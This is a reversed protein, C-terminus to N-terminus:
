TWTKKCHDCRLIKGKGKSEKALYVVDDGRENAERRMTRRQDVAQLANILKSFSIKSLDKSDELSSIKSEYRELLSVLLKEVIRQTPFDEGLLKIQNVITMLKSGYEKVSESEKMKQIEFEKKLNLIQMLKTQTNGEFDEKLKDWAEKPSECTMISTFVADSVAAHIYTLTKPKKALEEEHKKLEHKKLQTLTPNPPLTAPDADNEIVEWLSLGKLYTKMKIAWIHYNEATLTPTPASFNNTAM